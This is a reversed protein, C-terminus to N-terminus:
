VAESLEIEPENVNCVADPDPVKSENVRDGALSKHLALRRITKRESKTALRTLTPFILVYDVSMVRYATGDDFLCEAVTAGGESPRLNLVLGAGYVHSFCGRYFTETSKSKRIKSM